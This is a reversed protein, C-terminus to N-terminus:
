NRARAERNRRIEFAWRLAKMVEGEACGADMMTWAGLIVMVAAVRDSVPVGCKNIAEVIKAQIANFEVVFDKAEQGTPADEDLIM